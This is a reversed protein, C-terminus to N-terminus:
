RIGSDCQWQVTKMKGATVEVEFPGFSGMAGKEKKVVSYHGAGLSIRFRGQADTRFSAVVEDGQKVVFETQPLPKSDSAGQRTPGGMVPSILITGELGASAAPQQALALAPFALLALFILQNMVRLSQARGRAM